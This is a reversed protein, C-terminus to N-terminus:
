RFLAEVCGQQDWPSVYMKIKEGWKQHNTSLMGGEGTVVNKTVYFSFCSIDGINGIKKGKYTGEVCHAADEIVALGHRQCYGHHRGDRM